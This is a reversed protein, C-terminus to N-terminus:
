KTSVKRRGSPRMKVNAQKLARQVTGYPYCTKDAVQKITLGSNYLRVFTETEPHLAPTALAVITEELDNKETATTTLKRGVHYGMAGGAVWATAAYAFIIMTNEVTM